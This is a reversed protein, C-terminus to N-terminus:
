NKFIKKFFYESFFDESLSDLRQGLKTGWHELLEAM